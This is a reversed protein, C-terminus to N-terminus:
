RAAQAAIVANAADGEGFLWRRLLPIVFTIPRREEVVVRATTTTGETVPFDPSKSTWEFGSPDDKDENLSAEVMLVGGVGALASAVQSNGVVRLMGEETIAFDSVKNVTGVLSGFRQREVSSPDIRIEHGKAIQKGLGIPFFGVHSLPVEPASLGLLRASGMAPRDDESWLLRDRIEVVLEPTGEAITSDIRLDVPGEDLQGSGSFSVGDLGLLGNLATALTEGEIDPPLPETVAGNIAVSFSGKRADKSLSLRLFPSQADLSMMAVPDGVGVLRGESVLLELIVGDYPSGIRQAGALEQRTNRIQAALEEVAQEQEQVLQSFAREARQEEIEIRSLEARADQIQRILQLEQEVQDIESLRVESIQLETRAAEIESATFATLAALVAENSAFERARLDNIGQMRQQQEDRQRALLTEIRTLKERRDRMAIERQEVSNKRLDELSILEQELKSRQAKALGKELERARRALEIQRDAYSRRIDFQANLRDLEREIVPQSLLAIDDGAKVHDGPEVLVSILRGDSDAQLQSVLGPRLLIGQGDVKVPIQTIISWGIAVALVGVLGLVALVSRPTVIVLLQDLADPENRRELMRRRFM